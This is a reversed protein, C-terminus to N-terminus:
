ILNGYRNHYEKSKFGRKYGLSDTEPKEEGQLFKLRNFDECNKKNKRKSRRKGRKWERWREGGDEYARIM